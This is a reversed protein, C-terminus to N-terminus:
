ILEGGYDNIMKSLDLKLKKDNNLIFIKDKSEVFSFDINYKDKFYIKNSKKNGSIESIQKQTAYITIEDKLNNEKIMKEIFIRYMNSKVLQRIAPHFPGSVVDEGETINDTPQLGIRIVEINEKQYMIYLKTCIDIAQDLTLPNYLGKQYLDNLRTDKIVLTPYIRVIDPHLRISEKATYIIKEYDDTYLGPMIQHGLTFGYEKILKSARISDDKSHGRQNNELVSDVMSQIGLEIIDVQYEKLIDLIHSNIYDPRTSLRIKQVINKNKYENAIKLYSIMVDERLGTFTGGYFAIEKIIDVDKFYKLYTEIQDVVSNEDVKDKYNTIKLQNCFSCDHPCGLFPIFIPIIYEKKHM